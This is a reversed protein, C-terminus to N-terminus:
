AGPLVPASRACVKEFSEGQTSGPQRFTTRSLRSLPAAMRSPWEEGKKVSKIGGVREKRGPKPHRRGHLLSVRFNSYPTSNPVAWPTWPHFDHDNKPPGPHTRRSNRLEFAGCPAPRVEGQRSPNYGPCNRGVPPPWRRNLFDLLM